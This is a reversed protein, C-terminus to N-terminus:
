DVSQEGDKFGKKVLKAYQDLLRNITTEYWARLKPTNGDKCGKDTYELTALGILYAIGDRQKKYKSKTM